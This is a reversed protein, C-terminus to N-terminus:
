QLLIFMPNKLSLIIPKSLTLMKTKQIQLQNYIHLTIIMISSLARQPLIMSGILNGSKDVDYYIATNYGLMRNFMFANDNIMCVGLKSWYACSWVITVKKIYDIDHYFANLCYQLCQNRSGSMEVIRFKCRDWRDIISFNNPVDSQLNTTPTHVSIMKM